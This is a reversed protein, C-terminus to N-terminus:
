SVVQFDGFEEEVEEWEVSIDKVESLFPGKRCKAILDEISKQEGQLVAEVGGNNSNKVWGVIGYTRAWSKVFFRYGVGQVSGSILVHAQKM